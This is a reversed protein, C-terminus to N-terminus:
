PVYYCVESHLGLIPNNEGVTEMFRKFGRPPTRMCCFPVVRPSVDRPPVPSALLEFTTYVLSYWRKRWM